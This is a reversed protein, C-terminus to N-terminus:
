TFMTRARSYTFTGNSRMNGIYGDDGKFQAIVVTGERERQFIKVETGEPYIVQAPISGQHYDLTIDRTLRHVQEGKIEGLEAVYEQWM